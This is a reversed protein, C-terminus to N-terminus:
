GEHIRVLKLLSMAVPLGTPLLNNDCSALRFNLLTTPLAPKTYWLKLMSLAVRHKKHRAM